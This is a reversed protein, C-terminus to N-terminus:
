NKFCIFKSYLGGESAKIVGDIDDVSLQLNGNYSKPPESIDTLLIEHKDKLATVM